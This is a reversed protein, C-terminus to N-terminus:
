IMIPSGVDYPKDIWLLYMAFACLVHTLVHIELLSLPLGKVTRALCQLLFWGAQICVVLKAILDAKSKDSVTEPTTNPLLGLQALFLIGSPTLTLHTPAASKNELATASELRSPAPIAFGGTLAFFAQETTWTWRGNGDFASAGTTDIANRLKRAAWWQEWACYLVVEPLFVAIAMWLARHGLRRWGSSTYYVNPHYATWACLSLTTICSLLLDFTGRVQPADTW